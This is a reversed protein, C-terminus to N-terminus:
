TKVTTGILVDVRIIEIIRTLIQNVGGMFWISNELERDDRTASDRHVHVPTFERHSGVPYNRRGTNNQTQDTSRRPCLMTNGLWIVILLLRSRLILSLHFHSIRVRLLLGSKLLVRPIWVKGVM